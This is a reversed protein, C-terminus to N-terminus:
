SILSNRASSLAARARGPVAAQHGQEYLLELYGRGSWAAPQAWFERGNWGAGLTFMRPNWWQNPNGTTVTSANFPIFTTNTTNM